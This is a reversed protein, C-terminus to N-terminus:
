KRKPDRGLMRWVQRDIGAFGIECIETITV